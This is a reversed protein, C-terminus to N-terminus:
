GDEPEVIMKDPFVIDFEPLIINLEPFGYRKEPFVIEFEQFCYWKEPFYIYFEPFCVLLPILCLTENKIEFSVFCKVLFGLREVL